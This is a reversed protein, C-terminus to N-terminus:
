LLKEFLTVLEKTQNKRSYKSVLDNGYHPLADNLWLAYLKLIDKECSEGFIYFAGCETEDLTDKMENGETGYAIIFNGTILYEFLKATQIGASNPTNTSFVVLMDANVIEQIVREHSVYGHFHYCDHAKSSEIYEKIQFHVNGFLNVELNDLIEKPLADISDFFEQAFQVTRINGTHCITFKSNRSKIVNKFDIDDFGNPIVLIPSTTIKSYIEKFGNSVTTIYNTQKLTNREWRRDIVWSLPNRNLSKLWFAETWPDRLDCVFPIGSCRSLEAAGLQLSHPPSCSFIVDPQYERILQKGKKIMFPIWGIRADPLFLNVRIWKFLKQILTDKESSSLIHTPINSDPKKGKILNYLAFPELSFTKFVEAERPIEATLIEDLAPYNGNKVTLVVPQWGLQPLYKVFKLIRQVGPGGAPPWYYTIILVKRM